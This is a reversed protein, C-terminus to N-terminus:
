RDELEKAIREWEAETTPVKLYDQESLRNWISKCTENIIREFTGFNALKLKM